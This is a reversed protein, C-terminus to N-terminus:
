AELIRGVYISSNLSINTAFWMFPLTMIWVGISFIVQQTLDFSPWISYGLLISIYFIVITFMTFMMALFELFIRKGEFGSGMYAIGGLIGGGFSTLSMVAFLSGNEITPTTISPYFWILMAMTSLLVMLVPVLKGSFTIKLIGSYSLLISAFIGAILMLFNITGFFYLSNQWNFYVGVTEFLPLFVLMLTAPLILLMKNTVPYLKSLFHSREGKMFRKRLLYNTLFVLIISELILPLVIATLILSVISPFAATISECQCSLVTLAGSIQGGVVSRSNRSFFTIILFYNDVLLFTLLSFLALAQISISFVVYHSFFVLGGLFLLPTGGPTVDDSISAVLMGINQTTPFIRVLGSLFLMITLSAIVAFLWIGNKSRFHHNQGFNRVEIVLALLFFLTISVYPLALIIAYGYFVIVLTSLFVGSKSNQLIRSSVTAIFVFVFILYFEISVNSDVFITHTLIGSEVGTTFALFGLIRMLFSFNLLKGLTHFEGSM